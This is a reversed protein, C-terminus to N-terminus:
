EWRIHGTVENEAALFLHRIFIWDSTCIGWIKRLELLDDKLIGVCACKEAQVYEPVMIYRM